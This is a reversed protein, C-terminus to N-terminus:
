KNKSESKSKRIISQIIDVIAGVIAGAIAVPIAIFYFFLMPWAFCAGLSSGGSSLGFFMGTSCSFNNRFVSFISLILALSFIIAVALFATKM